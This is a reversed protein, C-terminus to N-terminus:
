RIPGAGCRDTHHRRPRVAADPFGEVMLEGLGGAGLYPYAGVRRPCNASAVPLRKATSLADRRRWHPSGTATPPWFRAVGPLQAASREAPARETDTYGTPPGTPARSIGKYSGLIRCAIVIVSRTEPYISCSPDLRRM